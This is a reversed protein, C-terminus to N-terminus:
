LKRLQEQNFTFLYIFNVSSIGDVFDKLMILEISHGFIRINFRVM